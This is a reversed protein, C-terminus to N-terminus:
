VAVDSVRAERLKNARRRQVDIRRGVNIRKLDHLAPPVTLGRRGGSAVVVDWHLGAGLEPEFEIDDVFDKVSDRLSATTDASYLNTEYEFGFRTPGPLYFGGKVRGLDGDTEFTVKRAMQHPFAGWGGDAGGPQNVAFELPQGLYAQKGAVTGIPALKVRKLVALPFIQTDPRAWFAVAADRVREGLSDGGLPGGDDALADVPGPDPLGDVQAKLAFTCTFMEGDPLDGILSCKVHDPAPPM